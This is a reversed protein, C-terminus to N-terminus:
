RLDERRIQPVIPALDVIAEFVDDAINSLENVQSLYRVQLVKPDLDMRQLMEIGPELREKLTHPKVHPFESDLPTLVQFHRGRHCRIWDLQM